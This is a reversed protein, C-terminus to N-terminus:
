PVRKKRAPPTVAPTPMSTRSPYRRSKDLRLAKMAVSSLAPPTQGSRLHPLPKIFKAELVEGKEFAV